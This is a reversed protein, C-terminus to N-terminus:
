TFVHVLGIVIAVGVAVKLLWFAHDLLLRLVPVATTLVAALTLACAASYVTLATRSADPAPDAGSTAAFVVLAIVFM